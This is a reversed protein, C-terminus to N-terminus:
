SFKKLYKWVKEIQDVTADQKIRNALNSIIKVNDKTYGKKSNIRDLSPSTDLQYKKSGVPARELKIGLIPCREPMNAYLNKIFDRDLDFEFGKQESRKKTLYFMQAFPSKRYSKSARLSECPRCLSYRISNDSAKWGRKTPTERVGKKYVLRYESYRKSTGCDNCVKFEKTKTFIVDKRNYLYGNCKKSCYDSRPKLNIKGCVKCLRKM